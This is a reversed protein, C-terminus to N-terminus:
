TAPCAKLEALKLLTDRRGYLRGIDNRTSNDPAMAFAPLIFWVTLYGAVQNRTRNGEITSNDTQMEASIQRQQDAIEACSLAQDSPPFDALTIDHARNVSTTDAPLPPADTSCAALLAAAGLTLLWPKGRSFSRVAKVM